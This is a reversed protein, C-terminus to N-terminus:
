YNRWYLLFIVGFIHPKSIIISISKVTEMLIAGSRRNASQRQEFEQPTQTACQIDIPIIWEELVSSLTTSLILEM